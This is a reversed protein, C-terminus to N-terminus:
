SIIYKRIITAVVVDTSSNDCSYPLCCKYELGDSTWSYSSSDDAKKFAFGNTDEKHACEVPRSTINCTSSGNSLLVEVAGDVFKKHTDCILPISLRDISFYTGNPYCNGYFELFIGTVITSTDTCM